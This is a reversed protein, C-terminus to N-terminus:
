YEINNGLPECTIWLSHTKATALADILLDNEQKFLAFPYKLFIVRLVQKPERQLISSGPHWHKTLFNTFLGISSKGEKYIVRFTNKNKSLSNTGKEHM